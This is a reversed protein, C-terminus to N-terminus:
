GILGIRTGGLQQPDFWAVERNFWTARDKLAFTSAARSLNGAKLLFAAPCQGFRQIRDHLRTQEMTPAALVVPIELFHARAAGFEPHDEVPPREVGYARIFLSISEELDRVAIVVAAVGEIAGAMASPPVRLGRPTQDEILFPLVSGAPGRGVIATEWRLDIGDPRKRSGAEPGRVEIGAARLRAAEAHIDDTRVAWAGPGADGEMLQSWGSTMGTASALSDIPAILEMYSGDPFALLDMHTVGNAHRGGYSTGLGAAAFGRRMQELHSGCVTVHDIRLKM